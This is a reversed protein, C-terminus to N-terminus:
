CHLAFGLGGETRAFGKQLGTHLCERWWNDETPFLPGGAPPDTEASPRVGKESPKTWQACRLPIWGHLGRVLLATPCTNGSFDTGLSTLGGPSTGCLPSPWTCGRGSSTQQAYFVFLPPLTGLASSFWFRRPETWYRRCVGSLHLLHCCNQWLLPLSWCYKQIEPTSPSSPYAFFPLHNCKAAWSQAIHWHHSRHPPPMAPSSNCCPLDRRGAGAACCLGALVWPEKAAQASMGTGGAGWCLERAEKSVSCVWDKTVVAGYLRAHRKERQVACVSVHPNCCYVHPLSDWKLRM